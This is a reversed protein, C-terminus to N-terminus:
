QPVEVSSSRRMAMAYTEDLIRDFEGASRRILETVIENIAAQIAPDDDVFRGNLVSNHLVIAADACAIRKAHRKKDM